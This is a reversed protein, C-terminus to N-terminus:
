DRRDIKEIQIKIGGVLSSILNIICATCVGLFGFAVLGLLGGFSAYVIGGLLNGQIEQFFSPLIKAVGSFFNTAGVLAGIVIGMLFGMTASFFLFSLLNLSRFTFNASKRALFIEMNKGRGESREEGPFSFEPLTEDLEQGGKRYIDEREGLSGGCRVCVEAELRNEFGCHICIAKKDSLSPPESQVWKKGDFYYWRSSKAGLTWFRGEEDRLRLRELGAIFEQRSIERLWFKRKLQEFEKEIDKFKDQM